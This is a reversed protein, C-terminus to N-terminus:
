RLRVLKSGRRFLYEPIRDRVFSKLCGKQSPPLVASPKHRVLSDLANQDRVMAWDLFRDGEADPPLTSEYFPGQKDLYVESADSREALRVVQHVRQWYM